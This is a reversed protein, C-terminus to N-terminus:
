SPDKLSPLQMKRIGWFLGFVLAIKLQDVPTFKLWGNQITELVTWKGLYFYLWTAGITFLLLSGAQLAVYHRWNCGQKPKLRGILGAVLPFALLFGSSAKGFLADMGYAEGAFVPLFFGLFLYLLQSLIGGIAGLYLGASYVALTQLTFPVEFIAINLKAGVVTLITFLPVLFTQQRNLVPNNFLM